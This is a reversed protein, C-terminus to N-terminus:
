SRVEGAVLSEIPRYDLGFVSAINENTSAGRYMATGRALAPDLRLAQEIGHQAILELYQMHALTLAKSATRPIDATMNPVCYHVVGALVFTPDDITTPRSTEFCGGQDIALDLIVSGPRMSQVMDKTVLYPTPGDVVLIAGIAVDAIRLFQAITDRDPTSTVVRGGVESRLQRLKDLNKDLVIVHAGIGLATEAATRGATGAGIILVTAPPQGPSAGLLIGRGGSERQLLHAANHIAMQGALESMAELVPRRGNADEIMEYGIATLQRKNMEAVVPRPVVAMHWFAALVQHDNMLAIEDMTPATVSLIVAARLFVEERRFVIEAGAERYTSDPFRSADGAGTEVFVRHGLDVLNRTGRPTLGVRHETRHREVPVGFDM